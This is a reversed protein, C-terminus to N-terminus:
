AMFTGRSRSQARYSRLDAGGSLCTPPKFQQSASEAVFDDTGQMARRLGASRLQARVEALKVSLSLSSDIGQAQRIGTVSIRPNDDPEIHPQERLLYGLAAGHLRELSQRAHETAASIAPSWLGAQSFTPYVIPLVIKSYKLFLGQLELIDWLEVAEEVLEVHGTRVCAASLMAVRCVCHRCQRDTMAALGSLLKLLLVGKSPNCIPFSQIIRIVTAPGTERAFAHAPRLLENHYQAYHPCSILPLVYQHPHGHRQFLHRFHFAVLLAPAVVLASRCGDRYCATENLVLHLVKPGIEPKQGCIALVLRALAHWENSDPVSFRRILRRVHKLDLIDRRVGHSVLGMLIEYHIASHGWTPEFLETPEILRDVRMEMEDSMERFLPSEVARFISETDEKSIFQIARVVRALDALAVSKVQKASADAERNEFDCDASVVTLLTDLTESFEPFGPPPLLPVETLHLNSRRQQRSQRLLVAEDASPSARPDDSQQWRHEYESAISSVATLPPLSRPVRPQACDPSPWTSTASVALHLLSFLLDDNTGPLSGTLCVVTFSMFLWQLSLCFQSAM